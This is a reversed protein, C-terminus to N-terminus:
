MFITPIINALLVLGALCISAIALNRNSKRGTEEAARIAQEAAGKQVSLVLDVERQRVEYRKVYEEFKEDVRLLATERAIQEARTQTEYKDITVYQAQRERDRKYEGNLDHLRRAYEQAAIELAKGLAEFREDIRKMREAELKEHDALVRELYGKVNIKDDLGNLPHEDSM